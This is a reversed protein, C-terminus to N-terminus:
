EPLHRITVNGWRDRLYEAVISRHCREPEPESCLLCAEDLDDRSLTQEVTRETLLRRIREAHAAWEVKGGRYADLM